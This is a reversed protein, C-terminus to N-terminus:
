LLVQWSFSKLRRAKQGNRPTDSSSYQRSFQIEQFLGQASDRRATPSCGHQVHCRQRKEATSSAFCLGHWGPLLAAPQVCVGVPAAMAEQVEGDEAAEHKPLPLSSSTLQTERLLTHILSCRIPRRLCASLAFSLLWAPFHSGM